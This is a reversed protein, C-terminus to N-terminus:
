HSSDGQDTANSKRHTSCRKHGTKGCRWCSLKKSGKRNGKKSRDKALGTVTSANRRATVKSKGSRRQLTEVIRWIKADEIMVITVKGLDSNSDGAVGRYDEMQQKFAPPTVGAVLCESVLVAPGAPCSGDHARLRAGAHPNNFFYDELLVRVAEVQDLMTGGSSKMMAARRVGDELQDSPINRGQIFGAHKQVGLSCSGM